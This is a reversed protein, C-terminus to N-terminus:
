LNMNERKQTELSYREELESLNVGKPTDSHYVENLVGTKHDFLDVGNIRYPYPYAPDTETLNPQKNFGETFSDMLRQIGATDVADHVDGRGTDVHVASSYPLNESLKKFQKETYRWSYIIMALLPILLPTQAAGQKIGMFAIMTIAGAMLGIMSYKYLGYFFVGGSEYSRVVVYMYQYKWVMYSAGFFMTSVILLVPAIVWYLQTICIVYLFDPLMTGYDINCDALPGELYMRRTMGKEGFIWRYAYFIVINNLRLMVNPVGSLLTTLMYNIFFVSAAPLATGILTIISAPNDIAASLSSFVSGALLILFVNALQYLFYWKFVEQQVGSVTKRKEISQAVYTIIVPILSMFVILVIVPLLGQLLAYQRTNLSNLFPLYTALTALNSIAAIFAMVVGWFMLGSSFFISTTYEINETYEPATGINTWIIDEPAPAVLITVKPYRESIVNMQSAIVQARLSRFTVFGTATPVIKANNLITDKIDGAFALVKKSSTVFAQKTVATQDSLSYNDLLREKMGNSSPSKKFTTRSNSEVDTTFVNVKKDIGSASTSRSLGGESAEEDEAAVAVAQMAEVEGNLIAIQDTLFTIADVKEKGGCMAIKGDKLRLTPRKRKPDSEYKAIVGELNAVAAAREIILADLPALTVAINCYLIENPFLNEFFERLKKTSRFEVPINEVQVSYNKQLPINPDGEKFYQKRMLAFHEYEYHIFYLFVLTFIYTFLWSVWLRNGMVPVNGM